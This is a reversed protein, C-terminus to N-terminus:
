LQVMRKYLHNKLTSISYEMAAQAFLTLLKNDLSFRRWMKQVFSPVITGRAGILGSIADFIKNLTTSKM